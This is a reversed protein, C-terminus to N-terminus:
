EDEDGDDYITNSNSTVNFITAHFLLVKKIRM